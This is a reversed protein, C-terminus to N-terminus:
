VKVYVRYAFPEIDVVSGKEINELEGTFLEKYDGLQIEHQFAVTQQSPSFNLVVFIKDQEKQRVFSLVAQPQNNPVPIM